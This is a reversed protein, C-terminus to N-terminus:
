CRVLDVNKKSKPESTEKRPTAASCCSMLCILILLLFLTAADSLKRIDISHVDGDDALILRVNTGDLCREPSRRYKSKTKKPM